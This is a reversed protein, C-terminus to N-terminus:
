ESKGTVLFEALVKAKTVDGGGETTTSTNDDIWKAVKATDVPHTEMMTVLIAQVALTHAAIDDLADMFVNLQQGTTESMKEIDRSLNALLTQIQDANQM